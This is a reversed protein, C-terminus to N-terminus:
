WTFEINLYVFQQSQSNNLNLNKFNPAIKLQKIPYYQVGAILMQGDTKSWPKSFGAPDKSDVYDYRGFVIWKEAVPVSTYASYGFYDCGKVFGKNAQYNYEGGVSFYNCKYGAFASLTKQDTYTVDTSGEPASTRLDESDSYLDAYARLTVSPIPNMTIGIGYKSSNNMNIRKYGEGNTLSLDASIWTAFRYTGTIGLDASSGMGYLDQFSQIIYRYGWFKEQLDFQLVGILGANVTFGKDKWTLMMNKLYVQSNLNGGSPPVAADMIAKGSLTPTINYEYGLYARTLEFGSYGNAEGLGAHYNAYTRIIPRGSPKFTVSDKQAYGFGISFVSFLFLFTVKKMM